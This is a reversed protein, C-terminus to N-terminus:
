RQDIFVGDQGQAQEAGILQSLGLLKGTLDATTDLGIQTALSQHQDIHLDLDTQDVTLDHDDVITRRICHPHHVLRALYQVVRNQTLLQYTLIGSMGARGPDEPGSRPYDVFGAQERAKDDESPPTRRASQRAARRWQRGTNS